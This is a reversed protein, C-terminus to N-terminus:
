QSYPQLSEDVDDIVDILFIRRNAYFADRTAGKAVGM